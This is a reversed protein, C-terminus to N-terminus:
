LGRMQASIHSELQSKPIRIASRWKIHPLEGERLLEYVTSESIALLKAVQKPKYFKEKEIDITMKKNM